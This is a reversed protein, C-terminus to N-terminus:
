TDVSKQEYLACLRENDSKEDDSRCTQQENNGPCLFSSVTRNLRYILYLTAYDM